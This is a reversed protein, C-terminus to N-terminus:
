TYGGLTGVQQSSLSSRLVSNIEIRVTLLLEGDTHTYHAVATGLRVTRAYALAATACKRLKAEVPDDESSLPDRVASM